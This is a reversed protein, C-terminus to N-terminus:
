HSSSLRLAFRALFDHAVEDLFSARAHVYYALPQRNLDYIFLPKRTNGPSLGALQTRKHSPNYGSRVATRSSEMTLKASGASYM